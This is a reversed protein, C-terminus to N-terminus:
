ASRRMRFPARFDSGDSRIRFIAERGIIGTIFGDETISLLRVHQGGHGRDLRQFHHLVSFQTGDRNVRYLSGAEHEGGAAFTGYLVGDPGIILSTPYMGDHHHGLFSYLTHQRKDEIRVVAGREYQGGRGFAAYVAGDPAVVFPGRERVNELLVEVGPPHAEPATTVKPPAPTDPQARALWTDVSPLRALDDASLRVRYLTEGRM